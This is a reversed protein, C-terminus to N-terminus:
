RPVIVLEEHVNQLIVLRRNLLIEDARRDWLLALRRNQLVEYAHCNRIKGTSHQVLELLLLVSLDKERKRWSV